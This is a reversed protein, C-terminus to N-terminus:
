NLGHMWFSNKTKFKRRNKMGPSLIKQQQPQTASFKLPTNLFLCLQKLNSAYQNIAEFLPQCGTYDLQLRGVILIELHNNFLLLFSGNCLYLKIQKLQHFLHLAITLRLIVILLSMIM